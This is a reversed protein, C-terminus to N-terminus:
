FMRDLALAFGAFREEGDEVVVDLEYVSVGLVEFAGEPPEGNTSLSLYARVKVRDPTRELTRLNTIVHRRQDPQADRTGGVFEMIADRGKCEALASGDAMTVKYDCGTAFVAALEAKDNTDYAWGYRAILESVADRSIESM